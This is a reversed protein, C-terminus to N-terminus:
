GTQRSHLCRSPSGDPAPEPQQTPLAAVDATAAAAVTSLGQPCRVPQGCKRRCRAIALSSSLNVYQPRNESGDVCVSRGAETPGCPGRPSEEPEGPFTTSAPM